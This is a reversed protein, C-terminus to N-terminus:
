RMKGQKIYRFCFYESLIIQTFLVKSLTFLCSNLDFFSAVDKSTVEEISKMIESFAGSYDRGM